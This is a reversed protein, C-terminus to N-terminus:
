GACGLRRSVLEARGVKDLGQLGVVAAVWFPMGSALNEAYQDVDGDKSKNM